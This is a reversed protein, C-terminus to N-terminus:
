TIPSYIPNYSYVQKLTDSAAELFGYYGLEYTEDFQGATGDAIFIRGTNSSQLCVHDCVGFATELWRSKQTDHLSLYTFLGKYGQKELIESAIGTWTYCEQPKRWKNLERCRPNDAEHLALWFESTYIGNPHLLEM